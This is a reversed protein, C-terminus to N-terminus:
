KCSSSASTTTNYGSAKVYTGSGAPQETYERGFTLKTTFPQKHKKCGTTGILLHKGKKGKLTTDLKVLGNWLSATFQAAKPVSVTLKPGKSTKTVKGPAVTNIGSFNGTGHLYFYLQNKGGVVATVKFILAQPSTTNVGVQAAATGGGVRSSKCVKPRGKSDLTTNDLQSKKCAPFGAGSVSLTKPMQIALKSLVARTNDNNVVLRVSSNAPHKKTGAKTPKVAVKLSATHEQAAATGVGIAATAAVAAILYKRL